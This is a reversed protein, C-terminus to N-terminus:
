FFIWRDNHVLQTPYKTKFWQKPAIVIQDDSEGLKAAWWSFTSNAIIHHTCLSMLYLDQYNKYGEIFITLNGIKINAKCWAIDDSFVIFIADRVNDQMYNIAKDYYNINCPIKPDYPNLLLDGRRVHLAVIDPYMFDKPINFSKRPVFENRLKPLIDEVYEMCEWHGNIHTNDPLNYIVDDYIHETQENFLACGYNSPNKTTWDYDINFNYLNFNRLAVDPIVRDVICQPAVHKLVDHYIPIKRIIEYDFQPFSKIDLILNTEHIDALKRGVAYQFMQNGLGGKLTTIIM